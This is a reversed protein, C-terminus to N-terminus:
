QSCKDPVTYDERGASKANTGLGRKAFGNWIECVNEGGFNQEDAQIIADRASIFTPNCPQLKLGDLVNQLAIINGGLNDEKSESDMITKQIKKGTKFDQYHSSTSTESSEPKSPQFWNANFGHKDVLNWYVEYLIEAWVEGKAHVGSYQPKMIYNYTSPNTTKSTSYKFKRIGNPNGSAYSGMAFNDNRTNNPTMRLITAFYDGWGEGMGGSEGWGLCGSNAPGGTLRNSIGHAYEHMIIGGEMDGDRETKTVDWTYMRMRGNQGDPPTAFNANNTGSGDQANAIVADNGKGGRGFNDHQFNGSKEDFGYVHFLDHIANNWYFLNTISADEYAVAKASLDVPFDFDLSKGGDPRHNSLYKDGGDLNNQAFVNNGITNTYSKGKPGQQHWGNPSAIEHAPDVVTVRDGSEPDNIGLPYVNYSADAVWDIVQVVKGTLTNVQCHLWNDNMELEIDWVYELSNKDNQILKLSIPIDKLSEKVGSVKFNPITGDIKSLPIEKVDFRPANKEIGLHKLLKFVAQKPGVTLRPDNISLVPPPIKLSSKKKDILSNDLSNQVYILNKDFQNETVNFLTSGFSIVRGNKDVNVNAVANVIDVGNANQKFHIHTVGNHDSNYSSSISLFEHPINMTKSIFNLGITIPDKTSLITLSSFKSNENNTFFKPPLLPGFNNRSESLDHNHPHAIVFTSASLLTAAATYITLVLKSASSSSTFLM